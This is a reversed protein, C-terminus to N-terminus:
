RAQRIAKALQAKNMRSRGAIDLEGALEALRAKSAHDLDEADAAAPRAHGSGKAGLSKRLLQMLDILQASGAQEGEDEDEAAATRIVDQHKKAKREALARLSEAERDELEDFDLADKELADIEKALAKVLAADPKSGPKPLGIGEPTRLEDAHRLTEARLVGREAIIAVLYEHGRMVLRGIGVKGAREMTQTLLAYAKGSRGAPALFYPREYHMPPIQALPVFRSLEIDRSEEPAARVFEADTIVVMKGDDTEYGRVLDDNALAKGEASCYFRRGLAHGERDVMKMSKQRGRAAAYFDVPISVLGFTITGSWFSRVAAPAQAAAEDNAADEDRM